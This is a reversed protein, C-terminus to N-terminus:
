DQTNIEISGVGCELYFNKDADNDIKKDSGISAFDSEDISINGVGSEIYYNFDDEDGEIDFSIEGVGCEATIDGEVKGQLSISGIGCDVYTDGVEMKNIEIEGAGATLNLKEEAQISNCEVSGAGVELSIEKGAMRDIYAEGAGLVIKGEKVEYDNPLSITVESGHNNFLTWFNDELDENIILQNGEQYCEWSDNSSKVTIKIKNENNTNVELEGADVEINLNEIEDANFEYTEEKADFGVSSIANIDDLRFGMVMGIVAFIGGLVVLIVVLTLCVKTFKKM